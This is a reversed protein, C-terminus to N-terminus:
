MTRAKMQLTKIAIVVVMTDKVVYMIVFTTLSLREVAANMAMCSCILRNETPMIRCHQIEPNKMPFILSPLKPAPKWYEAMSAVVAYTDNIRDWCKRAIM